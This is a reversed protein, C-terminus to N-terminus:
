FDVRSVHFEDSPAGAPFVSRLRVFANDMHEILQDLGFPKRIFSYRQQMRAVDSQADASMMVVAIDQHTTLAVEAIDVGTMEGPLCVDCLLLDIRQASHILVAASLFSAASLIDVDPWTEVMRELTDRVGPHDEVILVTLRRGM